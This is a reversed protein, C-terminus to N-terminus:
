VDDGGQKKEDLVPEGWNMLYAILIVVVMYAWMILNFAYIFPFGFIYPESMDKFFFVGPFEMCMFGILLLIWIVKAKGSMKADKPRM